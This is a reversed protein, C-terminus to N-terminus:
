IPSLLKTIGRRRHRTIQISEDGNPEPVDFFCVQVDKPFVHDVGDRTFVM